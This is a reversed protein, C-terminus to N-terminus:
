TDRGEGTAAAPGYRGIHIHHPSRKDAATFAPTARVSRVTGEDGAGVYYGRPRAYADGYTAATGKNRTAYGCSDVATVATDHM